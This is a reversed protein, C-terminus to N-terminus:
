ILAAVIFGSLSLFACLPTFYRTDYTAFETGKVSRFIGVYKFDGVTRLFFIGPIIWTGYDAIVHPLAILGIGTTILYINSFLLLGLSVLFTEVKRPNLVRDGNPLTPLANDFGWQGGFVWFLHLASLALCVCALIFSLIYLPNDM